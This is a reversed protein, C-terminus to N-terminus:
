ECAVGAPASTDVVAVYSTGVGLTLPTGDEMTYVFQDTVAKRAWKIPIMQGNCAFYGKGEGLLDYYSRTYSGDNARTQKAQLVLVNKYTLTKGTGADVHDRNYQAAKYLGTDADYTMTTTKKGRFTITIKGAASGNLSIDDAFQLGYDVGNETVTNYKKKALVEVMDEGTTFLTHELAYGQERREKDRFFYSGNSMQDIHDWKSLQHTKDYKGQLAARSGGCHVLPLGYSTAINSFYTRASRVPGISGVGDFSSFIALLRTIGGETEVEYIMDASSIGFQPLCAKINNVVVATPRATYPTYLPEGTLPHHYLAPAETAETTSETTAETTEKTQEVTSTSPTENAPGCACLLLCVVILLTVIRKM